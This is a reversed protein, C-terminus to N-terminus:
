AKQADAQPLLKWLREFRGTATERTKPDGSKDLVIEIVGKRQLEVTRKRVQYAAIGTLGAIQEAGLEKARGLATIIQEYHSGAFQGVAAAARKSTEPDRTRARKPEEIVPEGDFLNFAQPENAM